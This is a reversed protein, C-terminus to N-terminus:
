RPKRGNHILAPRRFMRAWATDMRRQGRRTMTFARSISFSTEYAATALQEMSDRVRDFTIGIDTFHGDLSIFTGNIEAVTPAAPNKLEYPLFAISTSM